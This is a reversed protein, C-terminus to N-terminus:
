KDKRVFVSLSGASVPFYARGDDAVIVQQKQNGTLDEWVSGSFEFGLSITQGGVNDNAILVVLGSGPHEIDGKRIWAIRHPDDFFDIQEGYAYKHRALLLRDLENPRGPRPDDGSIGYYDGYFVCPYGDRRLLILAYAPMKFWDAVCSELAQHPQSDHNDVFTM